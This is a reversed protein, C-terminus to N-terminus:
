AASQKEMAWIKIRRPNTSDLAIVPENMEKVMVANSKHLRRANKTGGDASHVGTIAIKTAARMKTGPLPRVKLETPISFIPTARETGMAGFRPNQL